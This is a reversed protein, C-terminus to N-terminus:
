VRKAVATEKVWQVTRAALTADRHALNGVVITDAWEAMERAEREGAIGGGYFLRARTLTRWAAKVKEVDGYMGSYEIYLVPWAFLKDVLRAFATLDELALNTRSQTLRSVKAEPNLSVYGLLLVQEWPIFEGYRKLAELHAGVIWRPDEANLVTPILYGDFGPVVASVDSVEQVCKVSYGRIRRLLALTNHFTVGDTGGVIIADTGSRCLIDLAEDALERDPDLKFVHRWTAAQQRLMRKGGFLKVQLGIICLRLGSGFRFDGREPFSFAM